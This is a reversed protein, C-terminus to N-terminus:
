KLRVRYEQRWFKFGGIETGKKIKHCFQPPKKYTDALELCGKKRSGGWRWGKSAKGPGSPSCSRTQRRKELPRNKQKERTEKETRIPGHSKKEKGKGKGWNVPIQSLLPSLHM